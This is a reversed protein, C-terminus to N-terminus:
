VPMFADKNLVPSSPLLAGYISVFLMGQAKDKLLFIEL